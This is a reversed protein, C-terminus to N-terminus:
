FKNNEKKKEHDVGLIYKKATKVLTERERWGLPINERM